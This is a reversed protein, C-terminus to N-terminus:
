LESLYEDLRNALETIPRVPVFVGSDDARAIQRLLGDLACHVLHRLDTNTQANTLIALNVDNVLHWLFYAGEDAFWEFPVLPRKLQEIWYSDWAGARKAHELWLLFKMNASLSAELRQIRGKFAM